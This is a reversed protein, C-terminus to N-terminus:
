GNSRNAERVARGPRMNELLRNVTAQAGEPTRIDGVSSALVNYWVVRGTRLDVLSAFALRQKGSVIVCAGVLCGAFGLVRLATRGTSTQSDSAHLFLAYDHGTQRGFAVAEEGLTWDFNNRKTPLNAGAYQHLQVSRGVAQHLQELSAVQAPDVGEVSLSNVITTRGGRGEQQAVLAAMMSQRAQETWDERHEVQGGTTLLGFRVDPRMVILSYDGQPVQFNTDSYQRTSTCASTAVAVAVLAAALRKKM